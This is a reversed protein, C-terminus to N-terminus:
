QRSRRQQQRGVQRGSPLQVILKRPVSEEIRMWWGSREFPAGRRTPEPRAADVLDEGVEEEGALRVNHAALRGHRKQGFCNVADVRLSCRALSGIASRSRHLHSPPSRTPFLRFLAPCHYLQTPAPNLRQTSPLFSLTHQVRAYRGLARTPACGDGRRGKRSSASHMRQPQVPQVRPVLSSM